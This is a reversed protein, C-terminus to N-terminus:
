IIFERACGRVQIELELEKLPPRSFYWRVGFGKSTGIRPLLEERMLPFVDRVTYLSVATVQRWDTGLEQLNNDLGGMVQGLKERLGETSVDGRAVIGQPYAGKLDSAAILFTPRAGRQVATYSFGYMSLESPPDLEPVVNVRAVPNAGGIMLDRKAIMEVYGQNLKDFEASLFQRPSRLEVGCLAQPPRQQQKLYEDIMEFAKGVPPAASFTVHVVEFGGMAMTGGSSFQGSGRRFRFGGKPCDVLKAEAGRLVSVLSASVGAIGLFHRRDFNDEETPLESEGQSELAEAM